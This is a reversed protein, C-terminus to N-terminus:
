GWLNLLHRALSQAQGVGRALQGHLPQLLLHLGCALYLSDHYCSYEERWNTWKDEWQKESRQWPDWHSVQLWRSDLNQLEPCNWFCKCHPGSYKCSFRCNPSDALPFLIGSLSIKNGTLLYLCVWSLHLYFKSPSHPLTQSNYQGM